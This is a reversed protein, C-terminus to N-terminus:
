KLHGKALTNIVLAEKYPFFSSFSPARSNKATGLNKKVKWKISYVTGSNPETKKHAKKKKETVDDSALGRQTHKYGADPWWGRIRVFFRLLWCLGADM